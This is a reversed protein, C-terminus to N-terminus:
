GYTTINVPRGNWLEASGYSEGAQFMEKGEYDYLRRTHAVGDFSNKIPVATGVMTKSNVNQRSKIHRVSVSKGTAKIVQFFDANTQEYGWITVFIDGVKAM